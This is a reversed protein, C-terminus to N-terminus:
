SAVADASPVPTQGSQESAKGPLFVLDPENVM